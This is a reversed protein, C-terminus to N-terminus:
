GSERERAWQRKDAENRSTCLEDALELDRKAQRFEDQRKHFLASQAERIRQPKTMGVLHVLAPLESLIPFAGASEGFRGLRGRACPKIGVLLAAQTTGTNQPEM